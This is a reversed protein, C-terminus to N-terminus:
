QVDGKQIIYKSFALLCGGSFVLLFSFSIGFSIMNQFSLGLVYLCLGIASIPIWKSIQTAGTYSARLLALASLMFTLFGAFVSMNQLPVQTRSISLIFCGIVGQSILSVWPVNHVSLKTLVKKFPVHNNQALTYLNWCNSALNSAVGGTISSFVIGNLLKGMIPYGPFLAYGLALIPEKIQALNPGLIGYMFIQFFLAVVVVISFATFIARGINVRPNIILGGIACIIEFGTMAFIAIPIMLAINSSSALAFNHYFTGDFVFFGVLFTIILPLTKLVIFLYQIRGGLKMGLLFLGIIFFLGAFDLLLPNINQLAEIRTRFFDVSIHTLLASSTTKSLFYSWGSLFGIGPSLYEKSYIYLGGTVPHLRALEAICLVLPLLCLAGLIYGVFGLPGALLALQKPNIFLGAGIVTNMCILIAATLKIQPKVM